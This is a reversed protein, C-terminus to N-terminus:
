RVQGPDIGNEIVEVPQRGFGDAQALGEASFACVANTADAWRSLLWSNVIRRQSSVVDPYHRGHETLILRPGRRVLTKALAAYFFPTYQHAHMVEIRRRRLHDALRWAVGLDRGPRRGLHVVAIGEAALIEGLTGVGDLCFITPEIEAALRRVTAAVLMEAGAVQMLHLVFGVRIPTRSIPQNKEPTLPMM